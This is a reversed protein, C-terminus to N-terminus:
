GNTAKLQAKRLQRLEKVKSVFQEDSILGQEVLIVQIRSGLSPPASEALQIWLPLSIWDPNIDEEWNPSRLAERLEAVTTM